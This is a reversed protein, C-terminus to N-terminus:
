SGSKVLLNPMEVVNEPVAPLLGFHRLFYATIREQAPRLYGEITVERSIYDFNVGPMRHNMLLCSEVERVGAIVSHTKYTHRLAHPLPLGNKDNRPKILHDGNKRESPFVWPSGPTLDENEEKRTKLVGMLHQSVPITYARETGGKAQTTM